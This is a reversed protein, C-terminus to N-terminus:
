TASFVAQCGPSTISEMEADLGLWFSNLEMRLLEFLMEPDLVSVFQELFSASAVNVTSWQCSDGRAGTFSVEISELGLVQDILIAWAGSDSNLVLMQSTATDRNGVFEKLDFVPVIEKHVTALGALCSHSNALRSLELAPTVSRVSLAPVAFTRGCCDFLCYKDGQEVVSENM